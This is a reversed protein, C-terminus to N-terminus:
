KHNERECARQPTSPKKRWERDGSLTAKRQCFFSHPPHIFGGSSFSYNSRTLLTYHLSLSLRCEAPQTLNNLPLLHLVAPAASVQLQQHALISGAACPPPCILYLDHLQLHCKFSLFFISHFINNPEKAVLLFTHFSEQQLESGQASNLDGCSSWGGDASPTVVGVLGSDSTQFTGSTERSHRDESIQDSHSEDTNRILLTDPPLGPSMFTGWVCWLFTSKRRLLKSKVDWVPTHSSHTGDCCGPGAATQHLFCLCPTWTQLVDQTQETMTLSKNWVDLQHKACLLM